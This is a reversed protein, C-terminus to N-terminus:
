PNNPRFYQGVVAEGAMKPPEAGIKLNLATVAIGQEPRYVAVLWDLFQALSGTMRMQNAYLVFRPGPKPIPPKQDEVKLGASKAATQLMKQLAPAPNEEPVPRFNKELWGKKASWEERQDIWYHAEAM